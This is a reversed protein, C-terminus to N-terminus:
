QAIDGHRRKMVKKIFENKQTKAKVLQFETDEDSDSEVTGVYKNEELILWDWKM